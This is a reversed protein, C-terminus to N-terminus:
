LKESERTLIFKSAHLVDTESELIWYYVGDKMNNSKVNFAYKNGKIEGFFVERNLYDLIGLYIKGDPVKTTWEFLITDASIIAGLTPAVKLVTNNESRIPSKLRNEWIQNTPFHKWKEQTSVTKPKKTDPETDIPDLEAKEDENINSLLNNEFAENTATMDSPEDFKSKGAETLALEIKKLKLHTNYLMVAMVVILIASVFSIIKLTKNNM